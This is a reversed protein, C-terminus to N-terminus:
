KNEKTKNIIDLINQKFGISNTPYKNCYGELEDLAQKYKHNANIANECHRKMNKYDERGKCTGCAYCNYQMKIKEKEQKLEECEQEKTQLQKQLDLITSLEDISYLKCNVPNCKEFEKAQCLGTQGEFYVCHANKLKPKLKKNLIEKQKKLKRNETKLRISKKALEAIIKTNMNKFYEENFPELKQKLKYIPCKKEELVNLCNHFEVELALCKNENSRVTCYECKIIKKDIM